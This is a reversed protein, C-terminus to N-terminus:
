AEKGDPTIHWGLEQKQLIASSLTCVWSLLGFATTLLFGPSFQNGDIGVMVNSMYSANYFLYELWAWLSILYLAYKANKIEFFALLLCLAGCVSEMVIVKTSLTPTFTNVGTLRYATLMAIAFAAALLMLVFTINRRHRIMRGIRGITTHM